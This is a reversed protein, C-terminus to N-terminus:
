QLAEQGNAQGTATEWDTAWDPRLAVGEYFRPREKEDEEKGRPRRRKLPPYVARLDAGFKQKTGARHGNEEGWFKWASWLRDIQIEHETGTVCAERVFAGVPSALDQLATFAIRTAEPRTFRGQDVLRALGDLSWNLIGTLERHLDPELDADENNLWSHQLLLTVFRGAIAASADGLRPLENSLVMFRSPLKGTWQERYKINVSLMDEGSISLLREVVASTDGRGNLRADAIVALPKGILPALGFDGNLSSLTPGAVNQRGILAGLVRSIVGKGARTPGVLLFIKHLDLRGSLVYGFWQALTAVSEMDDGWLDALFDLWREPDLADPDYDFPVATQNFYAPSHPLLMKRSVDLLGNACAVIVGEHGGTIWTPQDIDKPLLVIGALAELVNAVKHHNPAWPKLVMDKKREDWAEYQANETFRYIAARLAGLELEKWHSTQWTWWQGRWHCLLSGDAHQYREAHFTRAVAMPESPSPLVRADPVDDHVSYPTM